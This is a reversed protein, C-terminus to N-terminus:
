KKEVDNQEHTKVGESCKYCSCVVFGGQRAVGGFEHRHNQIQNKKKKTADNKHFQVGKEHKCYFGM